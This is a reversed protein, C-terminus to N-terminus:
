GASAGLKRRLVFYATLCALGLVLFLALPFPLDRVVFHFETIRGNEIRMQMALGLSTFAIGLGFLWRLLALMGRTRRLSHLELEPRPGAGRAEPVGEAALARVREALAPEAALLEEVLRRSAPSAEGSAYLPLLDLVVERPVNM